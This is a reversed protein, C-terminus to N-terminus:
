SANAFLAYTDAHYLNQDATLSLVCSYGYCASQDTTGMIQLLHTVEHITTTAGDQAHCTSSLTPITFFTPCNVIYSESPVTYAIIGPACASIIDTCFLRSVGSTTSNCEEAVKTFVDAVTNRTTTTSSKFYEEMKDAPGSEAASSAARALDRCTRLAKISAARQTGTCDKQIDARKVHKHFDHRTKAASAGDVEVSLVNSQFSSVGTIENGNAEAFSLSGQAVIEYKGGASLDHVEAVDWNVEVTQGADFTEFAENPLNNTQLRLRIGDFNVKKSGTFVEAKEVALQDLLSGTKLVKLKKTGTNTISAKVGSNGVAEITVRLPNDHKNVNTTAACALAAFSLSLALKM